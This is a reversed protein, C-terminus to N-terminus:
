EGNKEDKEDKKEFQDPGCGKDWALGARIAIAKQEEEVPQGLELCAVTHAVKLSEAGTEVMAGLRELCGSDAFRLDRGLAIEELMWCRQEDDGAGSFRELIAQIMEETPSRSSEIVASLAAGAERYWDLTEAQEKSLESRHRELAEAFVEPFRCVVCALARLLEFKSGPDQARDLDERIADVFLGFDFVPVHTPESVIHQPSTAGLYLLASNIRSWAFSSYGSLSRRELIGRVLQGRRYVPLTNGNQSDIMSDLFTLKVGLDGVYFKCDFFEICEHLLERHGRRLCVALLYEGVPERRKEDLIQRLEPTIGEFTFLGKAVNLRVGWTCLRGGRANYYTEIPDAIEQELVGVLALAREWSSLKDDYAIRAMKRTRERYEKYPDELAHMVSIGVTAIVSELLVRACLGIM